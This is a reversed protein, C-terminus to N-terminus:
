GGKNLSKFVPDSMAFELSIAHNYGINVYKLVYLILDRVQPNDNINPQNIYEKLKERLIDKIEHPMTNIGVARGDSIRVLPGGSCGYTLLTDTVFTEIIHLSNIHSPMRIIASIIGHTIIPEKFDLPYGIAMVEDGQNSKFDDIEDFYFRPTDNVKLIAYDYVVPRDSNKNIVLTAEYEKDYTKIFIQNSYDIRIAGTNDIMMKHIVHNNTIFFGKDGIFFGSGTNGFDGCKVRGTAKKWEDIKTTNM